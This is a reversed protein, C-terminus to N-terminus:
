EQYTEREGRNQSHDLEDVSNKITRLADPVLFCDTAGTDFSGTTVRAIDDPRLVVYPLRAAEPWSFRGGTTAVTVAVAGDVAVAGAVDVAVTGAVDVAVAGAIDVAVAGAVDVAVAGAVDVAM